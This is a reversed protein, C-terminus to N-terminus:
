ALAFYLAEDHKQGPHSEQILQLAHESCTGCQSAVGLSDHLEEVTRAGDAIAGRIEHDTIGNCICVYM